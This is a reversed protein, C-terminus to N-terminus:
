LAKDQLWKFEECVHLSRVNSWYDGHWISEQPERTKCVFWSFIMWFLFLQYYPDRPQLFEEKMNLICAGRCINDHSSDYM